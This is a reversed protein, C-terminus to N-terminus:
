RPFGLTPAQSNGAREGAELRVALLCGAWIALLGLLGTEALPRLAWGAGVGSAILSLYASHVPGLLLWGLGAILAPRLRRRRESWWALVLVPLLLLVAHSPWVLSSILPSAAVWAAAELARGELSAPLWLTARVTVGLVALAILVSVIRAWSPATGALGYFSSPEALRLLTAAPAWNERFGTGGQVQPFVRSWYEWLYGPAAVAWLAAVSLVATLLLTWRRRLLAPALLPLQLVKLAIGSGLAIGAWWRWGRAWGLFWLGSAALLLLNVQGGLFNFRTPYFAIALLFGFALAEPRREGLALALAGLFLLLCAQLALAAIVVAVRPPAVLLPQLLWALLPQYIYAQNLTPDSIRAHFFASYPDRGAALDRAGVLYIGFDSGAFGGTLVPQVLTQFLHVLLIPM